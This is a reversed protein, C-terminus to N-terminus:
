TLKTMTTIEQIYIAFTAFPLFLFILEQQHPLLSIKKNKNSAM